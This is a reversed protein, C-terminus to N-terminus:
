QAVRIMADCTQEGLRIGAHGVDCIDHCISAADILNGTLFGDRDVEPYTSDFNLDDLHRRAANYHTGILEAVYAALNNQRQSTTALQAM